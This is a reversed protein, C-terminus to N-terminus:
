DTINYSNLGFVEINESLDDTVKLNVRYQSISRLHPNQSTKSIRQEIWSLQPRSV